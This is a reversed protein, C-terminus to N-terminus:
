KSVLESLPLKDAVRDLLAGVASFVRLQEKQVETAVEFYAKQAKLMEQLTSKLCDDGGNCICSCQQSGDRTKTEQSTKSSCEQSPAADTSHEASDGHRAKKKAPPTWQLYHVSPAAHLVSM